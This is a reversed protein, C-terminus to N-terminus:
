TRAFTDDIKRALERLRADLVAREPRPTPRSGTRAGDCTVAGGAM